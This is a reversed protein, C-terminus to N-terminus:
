FSGGAIGGTIASTSPNVTISSNILIPHNGSTASVFALYDATDTVNATVGINTANTATGVTIGSPLDSSCM